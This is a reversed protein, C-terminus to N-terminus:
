LIDYLLIHRYDRFTCLIVYQCKVAIYKIVKIIMFFLKEQYIM